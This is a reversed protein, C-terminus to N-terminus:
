DENKELNIVGVPCSEIAARLQKTQRTVKKIAKAKGTNPDLEFYDPALAVCTGCSICRSEDIKIKM